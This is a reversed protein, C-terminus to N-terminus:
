NEKTQKTLIRSGDLRLAQVASYIPVIPNQKQPANTKNTEFMALHPPQNITQSLIKVILPSNLLDFGAFRLQGSDFAFAQMRFGPNQLPRRKVQLKKDAGPDFLRNLPLARHHTKVMAKTSLSHAPSLQKFGGGSEARM